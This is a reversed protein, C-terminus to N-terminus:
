EQYLVNVHRGHYEYERSEVDSRCVYSRAYSTWRVLRRPGGCRTDCVRLGLCSRVVGSASQRHGGEREEVRKSAALSVRDRKLLGNLAPGWCSESSGVHMPEQPAPRAFAARPLPPVRDTAGIENDPKRLGLGFPGNLSEAGEAKLIENHRWELRRRHLPLHGEEPLVRKAQRWGRSLFQLAPIDEGAGCPATVVETGFCIFLGLCPGHREHDPPMSCQRVIAELQHPSTSLQFSHLLFVYLLCRRGFALEGLGPLERARLRSGRLCLM